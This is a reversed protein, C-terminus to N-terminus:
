LGLWVLAFVSGLAVAVPLPKGHLRATLALQTAFSVVFAFHLAPQGLSKAALVWILGAGTIGLMARTGHARRLEARDALLPYFLLMVAPPMLWTTDGLAWFAYSALAAALAGSDSLTSRNRWWWTFGTLGIIVLCRQALELVTLDLSVKLLVFAGLPIFLNDLGRGSIAEFLAVLAGLTLAILLTEARGLDSALLLPIHVCFFAVTFFAISGEASKKQNDGVQYHLQGYHVGILAAVADALTLILIPICFLLPNARGRTFSLSFVLAVALPFYVEGLSDRAVGHLVDGVGRKWSAKLKIASLAVISGAALVIVPWRAAFLWPFSLTVLGMGIHLLKRSLEPALAGSRRFHHLVGLLGGLMVPVLALGLWPSLEPAIM